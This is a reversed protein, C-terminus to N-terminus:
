QRGRAGALEAREFEFYVHQVNRAHRTAYGEWASFDPMGARELAEDLSLGAGYARAVGERLGALYTAFVEIDGPAGPAGRGPVLARMPERRLAALAALWGDIRSEAMHPVQGRYVLDGAFLVGSAVDLVALDGETHGHGPVILRLRRGAAERTESGAVTLDPLVISTGDMAQAGVAETISALCRPCREGMMARTQESALIPIRQAAFAANGLVNQPHPHTNILLRVPKGALHQAAALIEEGQARSAGSDIVIVGDAGALIGINVVRGRNEANAEALIGPIMWVGPALTVVELARAAIPLLLLLVACFGRVPSVSCWRSM